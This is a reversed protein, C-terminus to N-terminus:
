HNPNRSLWTWLIFIILWNIGCHSFQISNSSCSCTGNRCGRSYMENSMMPNGKFDGKFVLETFDWTMRPMNKGVRGGHTVVPLVCAARFQAATNAASFICTKKYSNPQQTTLTAQFQFSKIRTPKFIHIDHQKPQWTSAIILCLVAIADAMLRWLECFAVKKFATSSPSPWYEWIGSGLFWSELKLGNLDGPLGVASTAWETGPNVRWFGSPNELIKGHNELSKPRLVWPSEGPRRPAESLFGLTSSAM